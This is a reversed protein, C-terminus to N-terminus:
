GGGSFGIAVCRSRRNRGSTSTHSHSRLTSANSAAPAAWSRSAASTRSLTTSSAAHRRWSGSWDASLVRSLYCAYRRGPRRAPMGSSPTADRVIPHRGRRHPPTTADGVVPCHGRRRPPMGVVPHRGQRRPPTGSSPTTDGVVPNHGRRRPPTVSSPTADGVVPHCGSSLTAHRVIYESLKMADKFHSDCRLKSGTGRSM